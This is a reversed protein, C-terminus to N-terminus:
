AGFMRDAPSRVGAPGRNLVHTYIMTTTVDRHGLLEQVTRIDHGDELLHTAFSHRLTHPSARKALGAQGVAHKIARQLVTEHLHHRRREGTARDVYFRTAPFVWQWVWERGARPYKRALATPLEVWGAGTALDAEHQARVGALHRRLDDKVTAPLMTRRDKDGKGGRVVILNAGFDVDQVRLRCCELVRLGAGYLLCAMLRTPGALRQLVARVEDRTLAVPLRVPRKARVVDDLWPLEVALVDRYLFLLASLAQNQTYAAVRGEVALASLFRAVEPAGLEAPHRKGHFFIFRRTWAVYAQETRRSYHRTRLAERVRDLLRPKPADPPRAERVALAALGEPRVPYLLRGLSPSSNM